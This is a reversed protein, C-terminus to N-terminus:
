QCDIKLDPRRVKLKRVAEPTIKSGAIMLSKLAPFQDVFQLSDDVIPTGQIFLKELKSLRALSELGAGNALGLELSLMELESAEGLAALGLDTVRHSRFRLYRLKPIRAVVTLVEDPAAPWFLGLDELQPMHLLQEYGARTLKGSFQVSKLKAFKGPPPARGAAFDDGGESFAVFSMGELSPLAQLHEWAADLNTVRGLHLDRLKSLGKLQAMGEGTFDSPRVQLTELEHLRAVHSLMADTPAPKCPGIMLFQLDTLGELASWGDSIENEAGNLCLTRLGKLRALPALDTDTLPRQNGLELWAPSDFLNDGLYKRMWAPGRIPIDSDVSGDPRLQSHYGVYGGFGQFHEVVQDRQRARTIWLGLVLCIVTVLVLLSRLSFRFGRREPVAKVQEQASM